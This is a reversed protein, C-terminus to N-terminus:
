LPMGIRSEPRRHLRDLSIGTSGRQLARQLGETPGRQPYGRSRETSAERPAKQPVAYQSSETPGKQLGRQPRIKSQSLSM